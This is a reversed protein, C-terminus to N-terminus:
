SDKEMSDGAKPKRKSNRLPRIDSRSPGVRGDRRRPDSCSTRIKSQTFLCDIKLLNRGSKKRRVLRARSYFPQQSDTFMEGRHKAGRSPLRYSSTIGSHIGAYGDARKPAAEKLVELLVEPVRGYDGPRLFNSVLFHIQRLCM